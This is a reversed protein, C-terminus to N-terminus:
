EENGKWVDHNRDFIDVIKAGLLDHMYKYTEENRMEKDQKVLIHETLEQRARKIWEAERRIDETNEILTEYCIRMSEILLEQNVFKIEEPLQDQLHEADIIKGKLEELLKQNMDQKQSRIPSDLEHGDTMNQLINDMLVKRAKDYDKLNQNNQGQKQILHNLQKELKAMKKTKMHDPFLQHWKPDLVLLPVRVYRLAELYQEELEEEKTRKASHHM